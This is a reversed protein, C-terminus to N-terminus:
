ICYVAPEIKFWTMGFVTFPLWLKCAQRDARFIYHPCSVLLNAQRKSLLPM